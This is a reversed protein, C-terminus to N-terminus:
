LSSLMLVLLRLSFLINVACIGVMMNGLVRLAAIGSKWACSAEGRSRMQELSEKLFFLPFSRQLERTRQFENKHEIETSLLSTAKATHELLIEPLSHIHKSTCFHVKSTALM